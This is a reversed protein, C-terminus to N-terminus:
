VSLRPNPCRADFCPVPQGQPGRHFHVEPAGPGPAVLRAVTGVARHLRGGRGATTTAPRAAPITAGCFPCGAADHKGSAVLVPLDCRGCEVVRATASHGRM